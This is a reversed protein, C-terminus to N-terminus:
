HKTLPFLKPEIWNRITQTRSEFLLYLGYAYMWIVIFWGALELCRLPTPERRIGLWTAVLVIAPLHNAYLTYTPAAIWHAAQRYGSRAPNAHLMAYLVLGFLLGTALDVNLPHLMAWAPAHRGFTVELFALFLLTSSVLLARRRGKSLSIRPLLYIGLGLFWLSALAMIGYGVFRAVAVILAALVFRLWLRTTRLAATVLLGFLVYYWFEYALSWLAPNNGFPPVLIDQVFAANGLLNLWGGNHLGPTGLVHRGIADWVLELLLAPVLVIELRLFRHLLYRSLSWTHNEVARLGSSGVLYGSLVFFVIVAPHAFKALLYVGAALPSHAAAQPWDLLLLSRLHQFTVAAAAIGRALDLHASATASLRRKASATALEATPILRLSRRSWTGRIGDLPGRNWSLTSGTHCQRAPM